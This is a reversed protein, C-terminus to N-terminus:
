SLQSQNQRQLPRRSKGKLRAGKVNPKFKYRWRRAPEKRWRM